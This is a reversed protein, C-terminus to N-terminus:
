VDGHGVGSIAQLIEVWHRHLDNMQELSWGGVRGARHGRAQILASLSDLFGPMRGAVSNASRGAPSILFACVVGGLTTYQQGRLVGQWFYPRVRVLSERVARNCDFGYHHALAVFDAQEPPPAPAVLSTLAVQVAACAQEVFEPLADMEGERVRLCAAQASTAARLAQAGLLPFYGAAEQKAVQPQEIAVSFASDARRETSGVLQPLLVKWLRLDEMPLFDLEDGHSRGRSRAHLRLLIELFKRGDSSQGLLRIPHNPDLVALRAVCAFVTLLSADVDLPSGRLSTFPESSGPVEFGWDSLGQFVEGVDLSEAARLGTAPIDALFRTQLAHTLDRYFRAVEKGSLDIGEPWDLARQVLDRDAGSRIRVAERFRRTRLEAFAQVRQADSILARSLEMTLNVDTEGTAPGIVEFRGTDDIWRVVVLFYGDERQLSRVGELKGSVLPSVLRRLDLSTRSDPKAALLAPLSVEEAGLSPYFRIADAVLKGGVADVVPRAAYEFALVHPSSRGHQQLRSVVVSAEAEVVVGKPSALVDFQDSIFGKDILKALIAEVLGSDLFALQSIQAATYRNSRLLDLVLLDLVNLSHQLEGTVEIQERVCPWALRSVDAREDLAAGFMRFFKAMVKM